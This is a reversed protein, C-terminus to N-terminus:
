DLIIPTMTLVPFKSMSVSPFCTFVAVWFGLLHEPVCGERVSSLLFDVRSVGQDQVELRWFSLSCIEMM